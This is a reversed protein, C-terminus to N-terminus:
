EDEIELGIADADARTLVIGELHEYGCGLKSGVPWVPAELRTAPSGDEVHLVSVLDNGNVRGFFSGYKDTYTM